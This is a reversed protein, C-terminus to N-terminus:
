TGFMSMKRVIFSLLLTRSKRFFAIGPCIMSLSIGHKERATDFFREFDKGHTRMDMFFIACDLDPGEHEKAIVAEKIAYMCCVSSCYGHDCQHIDRSGVCQLWAIKKPRKKDSPRVLHGMTPGSASLIREFEMSSVINPNKAYSYAKLKEPDFPQFGPALVISGVRVELNVSQQAHTDRTVAGPGCASVCQYCECCYGCNLCRRAEELGTQEDYGLEVEVFSKKRQEAPIEPMRARPRIPADEPIPRYAPNDVSLPGRGEALDRGDLYRIISEAAERGAAIAGIAVWPGTQLDGGAFVGESETAYTIPDVEVTGWRSFRLGTV